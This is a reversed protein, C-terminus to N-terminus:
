IKSACCVAGTGVKWLGGPGSDGGVIIVDSFRDYSATFATDVNTGLHGATTFSPILEKGDIEVHLIVGDERAVLIVDTELFYSRRRFPRTWTTWLPEERGHYLNTAVPAGAHLYEFEPSGGLVNKCVGIIDASVVLFATRFMLPVLLLPMCHEMPLRTGSQERDFVTGIEDDAEWEYAVMKSGPFGAQGKRNGKAMVIFVLIIHDEDEPRPYLFEMKHIVGQVTRTRSQIIPSFLGDTMYMENLTTWDRLQFLELIGDPSAAALYRCSPDIALHYGIWPVARLKEHKFIVFAPTKDSNQKLFLFMCDGSEMFLILFQPPLQNPDRETDLSDMDQQGDWDPGDTRM